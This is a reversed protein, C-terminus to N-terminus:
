SKVGVLVLIAQTNISDKEVPNNIINARGLHYRAEIFFFLYEEIEIEFGCGFVFGYDISKTSQKIDVEEKGESKVTHSLISSFEIGGLIYPATGDLLKVRLLIPISLSNLNYKMKFNPLDVLEIKSGKKFYLVDFELFINRYFTREFGIGALFGRKYNWNINAEEPLVRYKSLDFGGMIKFDANVASVVIMLGSIISIFKKM